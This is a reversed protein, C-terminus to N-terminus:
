FQQLKKKKKLQLKQREKLESAGKNGNQYQNLGTFRKHLKSYKKRFTENRIKYNM